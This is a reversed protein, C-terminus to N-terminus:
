SNSMENPKLNSQQTEKPLDVMTQSVAGASLNFLNLKSDKESSGTFEQKRGYNVQQSKQFEIANERMEPTMKLGNFNGREADRHLNGRALNSATQYSNRYESTKEMSHFVAKGLAAVGVAAGALMAYTSGVTFKDAHTAVLAAVSAAFPLIGAASGMLLSRGNKSDHGKAKENHVRIKERAMETVMKDREDQPPSNYYNAMLKNEKLGIGLMEKISAM